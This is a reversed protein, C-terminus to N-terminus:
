FRICVIQRLQSGDHIPLALAIEDDPGELSSKAGAGGRGNWLVPMGSAIVSEVWREALADPGASSERDGNSWDFCLEREFGEAAPRYVEVGHLFSGRDADLWALVQVVHRGRYVPLGLGRQLGCRAALGARIFSSSRRLDDEVEVGGGVWTRGPLGTGKPFQILRSFREFDPCHVYHSRGHRLVGAEVDSDWVELCGPAEAHKGLLLTVVAILTDGRFVPSGIAVDIGAAAALKERIFYTGLDRWLLARENSWVSGPLGEGYHFRMRTSASAFGAHQGYAGSGLVLVDGEPVWVEVGQVL